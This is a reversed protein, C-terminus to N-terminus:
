KGVVVKAYRIIRNGLQYGPETLDIIKGKLADSPAPIEAIAEHFDPNFDDGPKTDLRRLGKGQLINFLMQQILMTGEDLANNKAARDYADLVPLLATMIDRGATQFLENRERAANRKFNDHDALLYQYKKRAEELQEQLEQLKDDSAAGKPEEAQPVENEVMETAEASPAEKEKETMNLIKKFFNEM